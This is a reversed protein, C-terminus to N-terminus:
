VGMSSSSSGSDVSGRGADADVSENRERRPGAGAGSGASSSSASSSPDRDGVGEGGGSRSNVGDGGGTTTDDGGGTRAGLGTTAAGVVSSKLAVDVAEAVGGPGAGADALGAKAAGVKLLAADVAEDVGGTEAGVNENAGLGCGVKLKPPRPPLGVVAGRVEDGSALALGTAGAGSERVLEDEDLALAGTGIASRGLDGKRGAANLRTM